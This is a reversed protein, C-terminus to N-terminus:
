ESIEIIASEMGEGASFEYGDITVGVILWADSILLLVPDALLIIQNLYCTTSHIKYRCIYLISFSDM